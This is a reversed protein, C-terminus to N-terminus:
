KTSRSETSLNGIREVLDLFAVAFLARREIQLNHGAKDLILTTTRPDDKYAISSGDSTVFKKM